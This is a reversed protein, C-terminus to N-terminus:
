IVYHARTHAKCPMVDRCTRSLQVHRTSAALRAKLAEATEGAQTAVLSKLPLDSLVQSPVHRTM